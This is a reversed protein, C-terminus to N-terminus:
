DMILEIFKMLSRESKEMVVYNYTPFNTPFFCCDDEILQSFSCNSSQHTVIIVISPKCHHHYAPHFTSHLRSPKFFVHYYFRGKPSTSPLNFRTWATGIDTLTVIRAPTNTMRRLHISYFRGVFVVNHPPRSYVFVKIIDFSSFSIHFVCTSAESPLSWCFPKKQVERKLILCSQRPEAGSFLCKRDPKAGTRVRAAVEVGSWESRRTTRLWDRYVEVM